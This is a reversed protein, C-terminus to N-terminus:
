RAAVRRQEAIDEVVPAGPWAGASGHRQQAAPLYRLKARREVAIARLRVLLVIYGVLAMVGVLAVVLLPRLPPVAGLVATGLVSAVLGLLVDRRRKCAEAGFYRDSPARAPRGAAGAPRGQFDGPRVLLLSPRGGPAGNASAALSPFPARIRHAPPGLTRGARQLVGLQRHFAHISDTAHSEARRRLAGPVLVVAWVMLLLMLILIAM